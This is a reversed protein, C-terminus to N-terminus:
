QQFWQSIKEQETFVKTETKENKSFKRMAELIEVSRLNPALLAVKRLSSLDWLSRQADFSYSSECGHIILLNEISENRSSFFNHFEEYHEKGVQEQISLDLVMYRIPYEELYM